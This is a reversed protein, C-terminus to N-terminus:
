WISPNTCPLRLEMALASSNRKEQVLGDIHLNVRRISSSVSYEQAKPTLAMGASASAGFTALADTPM